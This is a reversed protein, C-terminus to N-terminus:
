ASGVDGAHPAHRCPRETGAGGRAAHRPGYRQIFLVLAAEAAEYADKWVWAGEADSAGFAGTMAARLAPADLARGAELVPLLAAAAALLASPKSPSATSPVAPSPVAVPPRTALAPTQHADLM